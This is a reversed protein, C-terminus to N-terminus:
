NEKRDQEPTWLIPVENDFDWNEKQLIKAVRAQVLADDETLDKNKYAEIIVEWYSEDEDMNNFIRESRKEGIYPCGGYGDTPDGTLVQKYFYRRGEEESVDFEEDHMWNFHHAPIQKLDKDITCVIYKEPSLTALIGMVDDAELRPKYVSEYERKVYSMLEPLMEPKDKDDRNHKYTPLVSYRFNPSTTFAFKSKDVGLRRKIWTIFRDIGEIAHDVDYVKSSVDESWDYKTENTTAYKYVMIDADILAVSHDTYKNM